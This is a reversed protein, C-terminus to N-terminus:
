FIQELVTVRLVPNTEREATLIQTTKYGSSIEM